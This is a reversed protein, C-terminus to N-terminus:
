LNGFTQTTRVSSGVGVGVALGDAVGVALGDTALIIMASLLTSTPPIQSSCMEHLVLEHKM